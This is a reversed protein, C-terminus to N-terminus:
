KKKISNIIFDYVEKKRDQIFIEYQQRDENFIVGQLIPRAVFPFICLALMNVILHLPNVPEIIGEKIEKDVQNIFFVPNIGSSKILEVVRDPNRNLEHIIFAPILPNESIIDIYNGVFIRIKEFLSIDTKVIEILNPVLKLFTEKFVAEFLKDKSRYYYHLMAKNIGAEDAIEQMRAGEMGKKVFVIKAAELISQETNTDKNTTM